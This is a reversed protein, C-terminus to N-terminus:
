LSRKQSNTSVILTGAETTFILGQDEYLDGPNAMEELQSSFNSLLAKDAADTRHVISRSWKAKPDRLLIRGKNRTLTDRVRIIDADLDVDDRKLTLLEGQRM